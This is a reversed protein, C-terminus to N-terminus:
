CVCAPSLTNSADIPSVTCQQCGPRLAALPLSTVIRSRRFVWEPAARGNSGFSVKTTSLRMPAHTGVPVCVSELALNPSRSRSFRQFWSPFAWLTAGSAHAWWFTRDMCAVGFDRWCPTYAMISTILPECCIAVVATVPWGAGIFTFVARLYVTNPPFQLDELPDATQKDYM